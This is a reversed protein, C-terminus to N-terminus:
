IITSERELVKSLDMCASQYLDDVVHRMFWPNPSKDWAHQVGQVTAFKVRKGVGNQLRDSFVQAEELLMDWECAYIAIDNPLQALIEDPAVGPSLCPDGRQEEPPLYAEDFLNTLFTPIHKDPRPNRSRRFARSRTADTAPYWAVIARINYNPQEVFTKSGDSSQQAVIQVQEALKLPVTFSLNGGASFGTMAMKQADLGLEEAHEALWLVADAGDEVATPFPYGPGLRYDVSVFVADIHKIVVDAWRADDTASGLTFGGGHFNVIVPYKKGPPRQVYNEPTYFFLTIKGPWSSITTEIRKSFAPKPPKPPAVRHLYMGWTMLMRWWIAQLHLFWRSSPM